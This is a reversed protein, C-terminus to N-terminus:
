MSWEFLDGAPAPVAEEATMYAHIFGSAQAANLGNGYARLRGVRSSAGNVLPFTGPEVPRWKGDRCYLWDADRWFGNTPMPRCTEISREFERHSQEWRSSSGDHQSGKGGTIGDRKRGDADALWSAAPQQDDAAFYLRQRINPAGFGAACTDLGGVAYNSAEMDASVLDLWTLGDLSAVQEGFVTEPRCQQIIWHWYPWLHREDDFGNGQGAASFPQCPCSGTWVPKDDSWGALRLAYSWIGVGAFFHCQVFQDLFAPEVDVISREDVYGPAVVGASILNRLHEAAYPDIENYYATM